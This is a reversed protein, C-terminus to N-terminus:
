EKKVIRFGLSIRDTNTLVCHWLPMTKDILFLRFNVGAKDYSTIIEKTIPNKYRFFSKDSETVIAVYLRLGISDLNTHWGMYGPNPQWFMGQQKLSFGDFFNNLKNLLEIPIYGEQGLSYYFSENNYDVPSSKSFKLIRNLREVSVMDEYNKIHIGPNVLIYDNIDRSKIFNSFKIFDGIMDDPMNIDCIVPNKKFDIEDLNM